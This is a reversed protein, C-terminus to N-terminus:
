FNTCGIVVCHLKRASLRPTEAPQQGTILALEVKAEDLAQKIDPQSGVSTNIVVKHVRPIQHVNKYKHRERLAPVVRDKYHRYFENEM